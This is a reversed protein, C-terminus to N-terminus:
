SDIIGEVMIAAALFPVPSRLLGTRRSDTRETDIVADYDFGYDLGYDCSQGERIALWM